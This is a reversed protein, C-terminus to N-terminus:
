VLPQRFGPRINGHIRTRHCNLVVMWWAMLYQCPNYMANFNFTQLNKIIDCSELIELLKM